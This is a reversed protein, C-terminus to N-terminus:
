KKLLTTEGKKITLFTEVQEFTANRYSLQKEVDVVLMFSHVETNEFTKSILNLRIITLTYM